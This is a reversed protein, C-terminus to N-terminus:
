TDSSLSTRSSGNGRRFLMLNNAYWPAVGSGHWRVRWANSRAEDYAYGRDAFKQIWYEHPQENSHDTAGPQGPTAATFVIVDSVACIADVLNDAFREPLHEAVETSVVVDSRGWEGPRARRLDAQRVNALGRARCVALADAAFEVGGVSVGHQQVAALLAGSGCGIDFLSTPGLEACITAAIVRASERAASDIAAFYEGDYVANRPLYRRIREKLAEIRRQSALWGRWREPILKWTAFAARFLREGLSLKQVDARSEM